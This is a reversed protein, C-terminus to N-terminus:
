NIEKFFLQNDPANNQAEDLMIRKDLVINTVNWERSYENLPSDAAFEFNTRVSGDIEAVTWFGEYANIVEGSNNSEEVLIAGQENFRFVFNRFNNTQNNNGIKFKQVAWPKLIIVEAFLNSSIDEDDDPECNDGLEELTEELEQITNIVVTNDQDNNVVITIPFVLSVFDREEIRRLFRYLQRDNRFVPTRYVETNPNYVSASFPYQFDACSLNDDDTSDECTEVITELEDDNAIEIETFDPLIVTIPYVLSVDNNDNELEEEIAILEEENTIVVSSDNILLTYPFQISTCSSADIINDFSGDKMSAQKLLSAAKSGIELTEGAPPDLRFDSEERCSTILVLSFVLSAIIIKSHTKM